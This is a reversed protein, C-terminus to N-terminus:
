IPNPACRPRPRAACPRLTKRAACSGCRGPSFGNEALRRAFQNEAAVGSAFGAIQEPTQDADPLAVVHAHECHTGEKLPGPATPPPPTVLFHVTVGHCALIVLVSSQRGRRASM